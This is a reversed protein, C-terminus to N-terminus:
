QAEIVVPRGDAASALDGVFGKDIAWPISLPSPGNTAMGMQDSQVILSHGSAIPAWRSFAPNTLTDKTEQASPSWGVFMDARVTGLKELSMAGYFDDAGVNGVAKALDPTDVLGFERLFAVRPDSSVYVGLETSGPSLTPGYLFSRGKLVPNAEAAATIQKQTAAIVEEARDQKGLAKAVVNTLDKWTGSRWAQTNYAVTPAIQSLRKYQTETVGSHPALILDPRLQLIKEFDPEEGQALATPMDAKLVNQVQNRFWPTFGEDDGGWSQDVGVPVVGLAAVVDQTIWGITVVRKPASPITTTGHVHTITVPFGAGSSAAGKNDQDASSCASVGLAAILAVALLLIRQPLPVPSEKLLLCSPLNAQGQSPNRYRRDSDDPPCSEDSSLCEAAVRESM